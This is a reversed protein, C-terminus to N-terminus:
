APNQIASASRGDPRNDAARSPSGNSRLALRPRATVTVVLLGAVLLTIVSRPNHNRRLIAPCCGGSRHRSRRRRTSYPTIFQAIAHQFQALSAILTVTAGTHPKPDNYTLISLAACRPPTLM